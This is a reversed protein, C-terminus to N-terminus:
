IERTTSQQNALCQPCTEFDGPDPGPHTGQGEPNIGRVVADWLFGALCMYTIRQGTIM